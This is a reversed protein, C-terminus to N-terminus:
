FKDAEAIYKLECDAFIEFRHLRMSVKIDQQINLILSDIAGLYNIKCGLETEKFNQRLWINAVLIRNGGHEDFVTVSLRTPTPPHAKKTIEEATLQM